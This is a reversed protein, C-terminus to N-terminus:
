EEIEVEIEEITLNEHFITTLSKASEAEYRNEFDRPQLQFGDIAGALRYRKEKRPAAPRLISMAGYPERYIVLISGARDQLVVRNLKEDEMERSITVGVLHVQETNKVTELRINRM